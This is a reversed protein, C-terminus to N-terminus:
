EPKIQMKLTKYNKSSGTLTNISIVNDIRNKYFEVKHHDALRIYLDVTKPKGYSAFLITDENYCKSIKRTMMRTLLKAYGKGQHEEVTQLLGLGFCEIQLIWSVLFKGHYYIGLGGNLEILSKIFMESGEYKYYWLDNVHKYDDVNLERLEVDDPIVIEYNMAKDKDMCLTSCFNDIKVRVNKAEIVEYFMKHYRRLIAVVLPLKKWKILNTRTLSERLEELSEDLSAFFISYDEDGTIGLLTKNKEDGHKYRYFKMKCRDSIKAVDNDSM